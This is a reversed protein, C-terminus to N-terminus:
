ERDQVGLRAVPAVRPLVHGQADLGVGAHPQRLGALADRAAGNRGGAAGQRALLEGVMRRSQHQVRHQLVQM